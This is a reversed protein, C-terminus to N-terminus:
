LKQVTHGNQEKYLKYRQMHALVAPAVLGDVMTYGGGEVRRVVEASSEGPANEWALETVGSMGSARIAYFNPPLDPPVPHSPRSVILFKCEGRWLREGADPIGTADWTRISEVLESGIVFAFSHKPHQLQLKQMLHYTALAEPEQMEISCVSVPVAATYTTDVALHCMLHRHLYSARTSPSNGNPVLWVEDATGTHIIESAVRLHATTIPDFRGGLVAVRTQPVPPAASPSSSSPGGRRTFIGDWFPM